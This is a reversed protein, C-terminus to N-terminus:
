VIGLDKTENYTSPKRCNLVILLIRLRYNLRLFKGFSTFFKLGHKGRLVLNPPIAGLLEIIHALHDEDRTYSEGSHPDFM